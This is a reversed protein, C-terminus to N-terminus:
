NKLETDVPTANADQSLSPNATEPSANVPAVETKKEEPAPLGAGPNPNALPPATTPVAPQAAPNSAPNQTPDVPPTNAPQTLSVGENKPSVDFAQIVAFHGQLPDFQHVVRLEYQYKACLGKLEENFDILKQPAPQPGNPNM